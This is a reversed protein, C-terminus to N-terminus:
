RTVEKHLRISGEAIRTKDGNGLVDILELDYVANDFNFAATDVASIHLKVGGDTPSFTIDGGISTLTHIIAANTRTSRIQMEATYGTLDTPAYHTVSGTNVVWIQNNTSINVSFNNADIWTAIFSKKGSNLETAGKVGHIFVPTTSISPLQHGTVQILTPCGIVVAEIAQCLLGSGYWNITRRFTAGQIIPLDIRPVDSM